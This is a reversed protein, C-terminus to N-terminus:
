CPNLECEERYKLITFFPQGVPELAETTWMFYDSDSAQMLDFPWLFSFASLNGSSVAISSNVM